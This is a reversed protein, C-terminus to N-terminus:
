ASAERMLYPDPVNLRSLIRREVAEMEEAEPESMHDYGLLHLFGHVALHTLHHAFPKHEEAAEREATEYSIAIDGLIQREGSSAAPAPFSLVNTPKDIRRWQRNLDRLCADDDVLVSLEGQAPGAAENAARIARALIGHMDGDLRLAAECATVEVALGGTEFSSESWESQQTM